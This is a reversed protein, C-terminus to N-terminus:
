TVLLLKVNVQLDERYCLAMDLIFAWFNENAFNGAAELILDLDDWQQLYLAAEFDFLILTQNREASVVVEL